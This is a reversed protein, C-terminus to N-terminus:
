RVGCRRACWATSCRRITRSRSGTCRCVTPPSRGRAGCLVDVARDRAAWRANVVPAHGSSVALAGRRAAACARRGSRGRVRVPQGLDLDAVVALEEGLHRRLSGVHRLPEVVVAPQGVLDLARDDREVLRAVEVVRAVLRQADHRDDRRPVRRQQQQGPLERRREGGAVGHDDLRRLEGRGRRELEGLQDLLRAKRGADDVDDGAEARLDARRQDLMRQDRLILKVPESAVPRRSRRARRGRSRLCTVSSSPPLDGFMTNSSASRSLATLPTMEPMKAAVPWVQM